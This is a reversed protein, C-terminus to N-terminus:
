RRLSEMGVRLTDDEDLDATIGEALSPLAKLTGLGLAEEYLWKVNSTVKQLNGEDKM